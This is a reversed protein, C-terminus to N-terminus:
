AKADWEAMEATIEDISMKPGDDLYQMRLTMVREQQHGSEDAEHMDAFEGRFFEAGSWDYVVVTFMGTIKDQARRTHM